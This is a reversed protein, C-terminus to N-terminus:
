PLLLRTLPLLAPMGRNRDLCAQSHLEGTKSKVPYCKLPFSLISNHCTKRAPFYAFRLETAMLTAYFCFFFIIIFLYIFYYYYFFVSLAGLVCRCRRPQTVRLDYLRQLLAKIAVLAYLACLSRLPLVFLMASAQSARPRIDM